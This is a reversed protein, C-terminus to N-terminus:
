FIDGRDYEPRDLSLDMYHDYPLYTDTMRGGVGIDMAPILFSEWHDLAAKVDKKAADIADIFHDSLSEEYDALRRRRGVNRIEDVLISSYINYLTYNEVWKLVGFGTLNNSPSRVYSERLPDSFSSISPLNLLWAQYKANAELSAMYIYFNILDDPMTAAESRLRSKILRIDVYYPNYRSSFWFVEEQTTTRLGNLSPLGKKVTITYKLNSLITESPTFTATLGSVVWSGSVPLDLYSAEIDNRPLQDKRTFSIYDNIAGTAVPQSFTVSITGFSNVMSTMHKPSVEEVYLPKTVTYDAYDYTRNSTPDTAELQTRQFLVTRRESPVTYFPTGTVGVHTRPTVDWNLSRGVVSGIVSEFSGTSLSLSTSATTFTGINIGNEYFNVDYGLNVVGTTATSATWSFVYPLDILVSSDPPTVLTTTSIGISNTTFYITYDQRTKRGVSDAFGSRVVLRYSTSATLTTSPRLTVRKNSANYSIYTLPTTTNTSENILIFRKSLEGSDTLQSLDIDKSWDLYIDSDVLFDKQGNEPYNNVLEPFGVM